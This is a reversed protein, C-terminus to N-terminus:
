LTNEQPVKKNQPAKPPLTVEETNQISHEQDQTSCKTSHPSSEQNKQMARYQQTAQQSFNLFALSACHIQQKQLIKAQYSLDHDLENQTDKKKQWIQTLANKHFTSIDKYTHLHTALASLNESFTKSSQSPLSAYNAPLHTLLKDLSPCDKQLIQSLEHVTHQITNAFDHEKQLLSYLQDNCQELLDLDVTNPPRQELETQIDDIADPLTLRNNDWPSCDLYQLVAQNLRKLTNEYVLQHKADPPVTQQCEDPDKTNLSLDELSLDKTNLANTSCAIQKHTEKTTSDLKEMTEDIIYGAKGLIPKRASACDESDFLRSPCVRHASKDYQKDIKDWLNAFFYSVKFLPRIGPATQTPTHVEQWWLPLSETTQQITEAYTKYLSCDYMQTTNKKCHALHDRPWDQTLLLTKHVEEAFADWRKQFAERESKTKLMQDQVLLVGDTVLLESLDELNRLTDRLAILSDPSNFHEPNKQLLDTYPCARDQLKELIDLLSHAYNKEQTHCNAFHAKLEQLSAAHTCSPTSNHAVPHSTCLCLALLIQTTKTHLM